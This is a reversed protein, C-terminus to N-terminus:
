LAAYHLTDYRTPITLLLILSPTNLIDCHAALQTLVGCRIHVAVRCSVGTCSCTIRSQLFSPPYLPPKPTGPCTSHLDTYDHRWLVCDRSRCVVCYLCGCSLHMLDTPMYPRSTNHRRPVPPETSATVAGLDRSRHKYLYLLSSFYFPFPFLFPPRSEASSPAQRPRAPPNKNVTTLIKGISGTPHTSPPHGM